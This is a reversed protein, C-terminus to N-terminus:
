LFPNSVRTSGFLQGHSLDESYLTEVGASQAAQVILADWFSVAYRKEIGMAELVSNGDNVVVEWVIYDRVLQKAEEASVPNAAKRRVNVYLEQIVQTSIVGERARWIRGILDKAREHKAGSGRDHAYILVNTDVFCRDSM